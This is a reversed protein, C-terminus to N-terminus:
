GTKRQLLEQIVAVLEAYRVPKTLHRDFGAAQAREVDTDRSYGSLAVLPMRGIDPLARLQRALAYGDMIPLGIDLVALHPAFEHIYELASPGDAAHRVEFGSATLLEVLTEGADANDDVILVRSAARSARSGNQEIM